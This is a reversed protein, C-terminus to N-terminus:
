ALMCGDPKSLVEPVHLWFPKKVLSCFDNEKGICFM